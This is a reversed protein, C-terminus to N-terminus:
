MFLYTYLRWPGLPSKKWLIRIDLFIHLANTYFNHFLSPITCQEAYFAATEHTFWYLISSNRAYVLTLPQRLM